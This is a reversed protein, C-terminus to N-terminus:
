CQEREALTLASLNSKGRDWPFRMRQYLSGGLLNVDMLYLRVSALLNHSLAHQTKQHTGLMQTAMPEPRSDCVTQQTWEKSDKSLEGIQQRTLFQLSQAKFAPLLVWNCRACLLVGRCHARCFWMRWEATVAYPLCLALVGPSGERTFVVVVQLSAGSSINTSTRHVSVVLTTRM